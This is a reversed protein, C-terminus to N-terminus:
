VGKPVGTSGSTYIIYALNGTVVGSVSNEEGNTPTRHWDGDVCVSISSISEPLTELLARETLVLEAQSDSLVFEMRDLPHDPDLPVYAAGSKLIGFLSIIMEPARQLCVGVIAEPGVEMTRLYHAVQNSRRNLECYTVTDSGFVVAGADPTLEVQAEFLNHICLDNRFARRPGQGEILLQNTEHPSLLHLDSIRCSPDRAIDGLLNELHRTMRTITGAEFLDTSYEFCCILEEQRRRISLTLDFKATPTEMEMPTLTLRPLKIPVMPFDQFAFMVQFLPTYSLDREPAISEVLIEFPLDQHTYAGLCTDRVQDLLDLFAPNGDIDGRLVLTNVFFGIL